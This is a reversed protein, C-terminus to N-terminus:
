HRIMLQAAQAELLDQNALGNIKSLHESDVLSHHFAQLKVRDKLKPNPTAILLDGDSISALYSASKRARDPEDEIIDLTGGFNINGPLLDTLHRILLGTCTAKYAADYGEFHIVLEETTTQEVIGGYLRAAQYFKEFNAELHRAPRIRIVLIYTETNPAEQLYAPATVIPISVNEEEPPEDVDPEAQLWNIIKPSFWWLLGGYILISIALLPLLLSVSLRRQQLNVRVSGVMADQFTIDSAFSASGRESRGSQAILNNTADYIAVYHVPTERTVRAVIVNLSLRDDDVILQSVLESIQVATIQGYHSQTESIRAEYQQVLITGVLLTIVLPLVILLSVLRPRLVSQEVAM